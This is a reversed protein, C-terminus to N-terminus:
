GMSQVADLQGELAHFVQGSDPSTDRTKFPFLPHAAVSRRRPVGADTLVKPSLQGSVHAIIPGRDSENLAAAIHIQACIEAISSDSVTLLVLDFEGWLGDTQTDPIASIRDRLDEPCNGPSRARIDVEFGSRIGARAWYSGVRGPGVIAIRSPM